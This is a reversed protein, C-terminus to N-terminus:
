KESNEHFKLCIVSAEIITGLAKFNRRQYIAEKFPLFFFKLFDDLIIDLTYCLLLSTLGTVKSLLKMLQFCM